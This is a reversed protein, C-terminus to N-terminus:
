NEQLESNLTEFKDLRQGPKIPIEFRMKTVDYGRSEMEKIFDDNFFKSLFSADRSTGVGLPYHLM